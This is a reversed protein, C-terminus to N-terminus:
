HRVRAGMGALSKARIHAECMQPQLNSYPTFGFVICTLYTGHGPKPPLNLATALM